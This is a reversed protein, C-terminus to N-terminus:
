DAEENGASYTGMAVADEGLHDPGLGWLFSISMEPGPTEIREINLRMQSSWYVNDEMREADM